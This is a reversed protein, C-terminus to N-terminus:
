HGSRSSAFGAWWLGVAAAVVMAAYTVMKGDHEFAALGAVSAAAAAGGAWAWLRRLSAHALERRWITRSAVAALGGMVIAPAFFNALHWFLEIATM